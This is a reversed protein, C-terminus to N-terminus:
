RINLLLITSVEASPGCFNNDQSTFLLKQLPFVINLELSLVQINESSM